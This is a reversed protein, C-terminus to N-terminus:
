PLASRIANRSDVANQQAAAVSKGYGLIEKDIGEGGYLKVRTRDLDARCEFRHNPNLALWDDITM